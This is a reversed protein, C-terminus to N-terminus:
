WCFPGKALLCCPRLQRSLLKPLATPVNLVLSAGQGELPRAVGCHKHGSYVSAM